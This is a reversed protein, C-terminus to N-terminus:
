VKPEAVAGRHYTAEVAWEEDGVPSINTMKITIPGDASPIFEIRWGWDASGEYPYHGNLTVHGTHSVKGDLQMVGTNQHWSDVWAGTVADAAEPGAFM